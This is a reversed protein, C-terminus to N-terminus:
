KVGDGTGCEAFTGVHTEAQGVRRHEVRGGLHVRLEFSRQRTEFRHEPLAMRQEHVAHIAFRRFPRGLVTGDVGVEHEAFEREGVRLVDVRRHLGRVLRIGRPARQGDRLAGRQQALGAIQHLLADVVDGGREREFDALVAHFREAFRLLRDVEEVVVGVVELLVAAEIM